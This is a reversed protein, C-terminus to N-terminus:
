TTGGSPEVAVALELSEVIGNERLLEVTAKRVQRDNDWLIKQCADKVSKLINDGDRARRDGFRARVEIVYSADRPWTRAATKEWRARAELAHAAVREEYDITRQPTYWHKGLRARAKPVPRGPISVLLVGGVNM